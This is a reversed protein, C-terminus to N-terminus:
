SGIHNAMIIATLTASGVSAAPIFEKWYTRVLHKSSLLHSPLEKPEEEMIQEHYQTSADLGGRFGARSALVATTVAGAVGLGTLIGPSNDTVFKEATKFITKITM